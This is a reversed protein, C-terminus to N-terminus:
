CDPHDPIKPNDGYFLSFDYVILWGLSSIRDNWGITKLNNDEHVGSSGTTPAICYLIKTSSAYYSDANCVLVPRLDRGYHQRAQQKGMFDVFFMTYYSSPNMENFVKISSCKDNFGYDRLYPLGTCWKTTAYVILETDKFNRDDYLEAHAIRIAGEINTWFDKLGGRTNVGDLTISDNTLTMFNYKKEVDEQSAFYEVYKVGDETTVVTALDPLKSIKSNYVDAYEQNLYVVSDGVVKVDTEYIKDEFKVVMRSISSESETSGYNMPEQENSCSQNLAVICFSLFALLIKVKM